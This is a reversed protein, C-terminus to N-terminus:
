PRNTRDKEGDYKKVGILLFERWTMVGKIIKLAKFEDDEVTIRIERM